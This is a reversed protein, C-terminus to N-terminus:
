RGGGLPDLILRLAIAHPHEAHPDGHQLRVARDLDDCWARVRAVAGEAAEARTTAPELRAVKAYLDGLEDSMADAISDAMIDAELEDRPVRDLFLQIVHEIAKRAEAIGEEPTIAATHEASQETLEPAYM